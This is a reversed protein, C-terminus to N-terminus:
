EDVKFSAGPASYGMWTGNAQICSAAVIQGVVQEGDDYKLGLPKHEVIYHHMASLFDSASFNPVKDPDINLSREHGEATRVVVNCRNDGAQAAVTALFLTATGTLLLKKMKDGVNFGSKSNTEKHLGCCGLLSGYNPM